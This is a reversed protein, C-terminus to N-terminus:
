TKELLSLFDDLSLNGWAEQMVLIQVKKGTIFIEIEAVLVDGLHVEYYLNRNTITFKGDQRIADLVAPITWSRYPEFESIIEGDEFLTVPEDFARGSHPNLSSAVYYNFDLISQTRDDTETVTGINGVTVHFKKGVM